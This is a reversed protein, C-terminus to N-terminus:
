DLIQEDCYFKHIIFTDNIMTKPQIRRIYYNVGNWVFKGKLMERLDEEETALGNDWLNQTPISIKATSYPRNVAKEGEKAEVVVRATLYVPDKYVKNTTEGYSNVKSAEVDLFYFPVKKSFIEDYVELVGDLFDQETQDTIVPITGM